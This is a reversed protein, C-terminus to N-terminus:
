VKRRRVVALDKMGDNKELWQSVEPDLNTFPFQGNRDLANYFDVVKRPLNFILGERTKKLAVALANMENLVGPTNPIRQSLESFRAASQKYKAIEGAYDLVSKVSELQADAVAFQRELLVKWSDWTNASNKELCRVYGDLLRCFDGVCGSQRVSSPDAKWTEELLRYKDRLFVLLPGEEEAVEQTSFDVPPGLLAQRHLVANGLVSQKAELEKTAGEVEEIVRRNDDGAILLDLERGIEALQELLRTM